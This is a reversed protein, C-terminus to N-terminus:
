KIKRRLYATTILKDLYAQTNITVLAWGRSELTSIADTIHPIRLKNYYDISDGRSFYFQVDGMGNLGPSASALQAYEYTQAAAYFTCCAMFLLLIAKKM